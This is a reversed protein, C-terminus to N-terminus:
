EAPAHGHGTKGAAQDTEMQSLRQAIANIPKTFPALLLYLAPIVFATLITAFSVGGIIVWGIAERSEAGAGHAYALPVAGCITAISTMLIPRLRAVSAELVADYVSRGEDRLQNAFEVILIGNKAMLGVLLIMGIQSYINLSIGTFWLAGMGGTVALPVALMIVLPHIWSEFQGALVLFVVILALGFTVYLSSSSDKFERSQGQYGIRVEPPLVERVIKELTDLGEAITFGPVLGSRITISRLRDVRNLEQPGAAEVLQVLNSLPILERTTTSRVFISALDSPTARDEARAQMIVKYEEGRDVYTNVERSGFLAELTKGITEISVGLDAAKPRDIRVRLEPKNEKYNSDANVFRTDTRVRDLVRDRWNRLTDYDSGGLVFLIPSPDGRQGLTGPSNVRAFAGPIATIKPTIEKMMDQQKRTREDWSKLRVFVNAINVPAPRAFSPALNTMIAQVQGQQVLPQIVQEIKIAQERTFGLSAGEPTLVQIWIAGRDEPPTLEKPLINWLLYALSSVCVAMAIIVIPMSLAGRLLWRYGANLGVFIPETVRYLFGEGEHSRLFKSCMMPSLSLAVMGSFIVSAALAIGFETFLRGINGEMFSIPVFVAILTLTTSVVAFAIQRSGRLAALLPPEGLEIRRHINELVVIADDVVIGIALVLALLTLVNLSFGMAAMVTFSGIISVPIAVTPIITASVSRLFFFIVAIVLLIGIGLAHMVEYISQKIFVSEDYSVIYTMGEPLAVRLREMEGKAGEAVTLTNATSQRLIGLGVATRGDTRMESREDEPGIEVKAIEGLRVPYGARTSIVINRFQEPTSLRSDTKVTLERQTSEIRGSPLEINQRKIATEVDEVTLLRAALAQRDLWLRMSFRREGSIQVQAVGPVISLKDVLNRRAYDTLEMQNMRDSTLSFFVISRADSDVKSVVPDEAAEPLRARIRAVRDRVDAAAADVNRDIRFEIVVQSREERSQSTISRVGEIGSVAAEVLETIRSEMVENSAGKYVTTVSVIPPDIAPFERVPLKLFAALGLVLVTLSIVTAFVPRKISVDSLVM